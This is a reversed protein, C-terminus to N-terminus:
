AERLVDAIKARLFVYKASVMAIVSASLMTIVFFIIGHEMTLISINSGGLLQAFYSNFIYSGVFFLILALVFGLVAIILAEILVIIYTDVSRIGILRLVVFNKRRMKLSSFILGGLAITGGISSVLAVVLFVFNLVRDIAKINEIEGVKSNLNLNKAQLDYFLPIVSDIDKAYLRFKAYFRKNDKVISGDSIIEPNYGTRYDDIAELTKLNMLIADKLIFGPAIIGKVTLPYQVAQRAGNQTRSIMLTVTDGVKVNRKNALESSIFVENVKLADNESKYPIKSKEVVPDGLDTPLASVREVGGAFKLDVLANIANVEPVVFGVRPDTKLSNIFGEDLKYSTMLSIALVNPDSLLKQELEQLVGFRLSFLLLLPAIISALAAIECISMLRDFFLDKLALKFLSLRPWNVVKSDVTESNDLRNEHNQVSGRGSDQASTGERASISEPASDGYESSAVKEANEESKDDYSKRNLSADDHDLNIQHNSKVKSEDSSFHALISDDNVNAIDEFVCYQDRSKAQNFVYSKYYRMAREDHTVMLVSIKSTHAIEDILSFLIKANTPDLSATPEDILILRPNHSIARLFLARQRQGISLEHPLKDLHEELSFRKVYSYLKERSFKHESELENTAMEVIADAAEDTDLKQLEQGLRLSAKSALQIQLGLNERVTLFPILGGVQPMLGLKVIRVDELTNDDLEDLNLGDLKFKKVSEYPSVLSIAELLTSKGSGSVGCLAACSGDRIKLDLLLAAFSERRVLLDSIELM